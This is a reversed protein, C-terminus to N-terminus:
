TTERGDQRRLRKEISALASPMLVIREYSLLDYASLDQARILRVKPLNRFARVTLADSDGILLYSAAAPLVALWGAATATKGDPITWGATMSLRQQGLALTLAQCLAQRRSNISLSFKYNRRNSPGFVVGGGRWVPNRSSGVRARGTGKQRWPKRGGGSVQGRNKVTASGQRDGALRALYATKLLDTTKLPADFMAPPLQVKETPQSGSVAEMKITPQKTM